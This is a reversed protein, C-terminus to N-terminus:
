SDYFEKKNKKKERVVGDNQRERVGALINRQNWRAHRCRRFLESWQEAYRSVLHVLLVVTRHRSAHRIFPPRSRCSIIKLEFWVKNERERSRKINYESILWFFTKLEIYIVCSTNLFYSQYSRHTNIKEISIKTLSAFAYLTESFRIVDREM